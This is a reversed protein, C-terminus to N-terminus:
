KKTPVVTLWLRGTEVDFSKLATTAAREIHQQPGRSRGFIHLLGSATTQGDAKLKLTVTKASEGKPESKVSTAIVGPPLGRSEILIEEAFGTKRTVTLPIELEKDSSLVFADAAVSLTFDPQPETITLVYVFREGHHLFRDTVSLRYDGDAPATFEFEPDFSKNNDDDAEKLLKGNDDYLRVVADLPSGIGRALIEFQLSQGKKATFQYFDADGPQAIHGTVSVPWSLTQPAALENPEHEV